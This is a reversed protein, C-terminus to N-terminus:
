ARSIPNARTTRRRGQDTLTTLRPKSGGERAREWRRQTQSQRAGKEQASGSGSSIQRKKVRCGRGRREKEHVDDVFDTTEKVEQRENQACKCLVMVMIALDERRDTKAAVVTSRVPADAVRSGM